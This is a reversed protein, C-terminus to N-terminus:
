VGPSSPTRLRKRFSFALGQLQSSDQLIKCQIFDFKGGAVSNNTLGGTVLGLQVRAVIHTPNDLPLGSVPNAITQATISSTQNGQAVGTQSADGRINTIRIIRHCPVALNATGDGDPDSAPCLTGPPDIPVGLFLAQNTQGTILVLSRGQFVNPHGATGNYTTAAGASGGGLINCVGPGAATNDDNGAGCNRIVRTPNSPSNPEDIILLAELFETNGNVVATVKSSVYTDLNIAINVQPVLQGPATPVGGTCDIILDGMLESYGEARVTPPVGTTNQCQLAQASAPVTLGALLAVFALAYLCRRFEAM